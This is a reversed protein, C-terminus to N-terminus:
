RSALAAYRARVLAGDNPGLSYLASAGADSDEENYDGIVRVSLAPTPRYLLQGRLGTRRSGNLDRGDIVDHVYGGKSTQAM